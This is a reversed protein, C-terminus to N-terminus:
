AGNMGSDLEDTRLLGEREEPDLGAWGYVELDVLGSEDFVVGEEELL